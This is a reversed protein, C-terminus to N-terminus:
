NFHRDNWAETSFQGFFALWGFVTFSAMVLTCWAWFGIRAASLFGADPAAGIWAAPVLLTLVLALLVVTASLHLASRFPWGLVVRLPSLDHGWKHVLYYRGEGLPVFLLPDVETDCLKFRSAPAMIKYSRVPGETHRELERIAHIAQLPIEGKFLGADLFRLRFKVCTRRITEESFVRHPDFARLRAPTSGRSSLVMARLVDDRRQEEAFLTHVDDVLRQSGLLLGALRQQQVKPDM